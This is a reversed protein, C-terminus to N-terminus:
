QQRKANWFAQKATLYKTNVFPSDEIAKCYCGYDVYYYSWHDYWWEYSPGAYWWASADDYWWASNNNSWSASADDEWTANANDEWTASADDEWIASTGDEWTTSSDDEWSEDTDEDWSDSVDDEWTANADDEWSASADDEWEASADDNWWAFWESRDVSENWHYFQYNGSTYCDDYYSCADGYYEDFYPGEYWGKTNRNSFFFGSYNDYMSWLPFKGTVEEHENRAAEWFDPFRGHLSRYRDATMFFSDRAWAPMEGAKVYFRMADAGYFPAKANVLTQGEYSSNELYSLGEGGDCGTLALAMLGFALCLCEWRKEWRKVNFNM